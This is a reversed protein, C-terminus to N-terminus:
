TDLCLLMLLKLHLFLLPRNLADDLLPLTQGFIEDRLIVVVCNLVQLLYFRIGLRTVWNTPPRAQSM